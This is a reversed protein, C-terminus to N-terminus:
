VIFIGERAKAYQMHIKPYDSGRLKGIIGSVRNWNKVRIWADAAKEWFQGKEFVVAAESYQKLGMLINACDLFLTKDNAQDLLSMGRSIDGLRLTTRTFGSSSLIEHEDREDPSGKFQEATELAKNYPRLADAHKGTYELHQAYQRAIKSVEWPALKTALQLAQDWHLLDRRMELADIPRSSDLFSSQALDFEKFLTAIHGCLENLEQCKDISELTMVMGADTLIERYIRKAFILDLARLASEAVLTWAKRSLIVSKMSWLEPLMNALYLRNLAEGQEQETVANSSKLFAEPSVFRYTSLSIVDLRGTPTHCSVEGNNMFLVPKLGFPIKTDGVALLQPGRAM